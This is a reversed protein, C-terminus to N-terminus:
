RDQNYDAEPERDGVGEIDGFRADLDAVRKKRTASTDTQTTKNKNDRVADAVPNHDELTVEQEVAPTEAQPTNMPVSADDFEYATGYSSDMSWTSGYDVISPQLPETGDYMYLSATDVGYIQLSGMKLWDEDRMFHYKDDMRKLSAMVTSAYDCDVYALGMEANARREQNEESNSGKGFMSAVKDKAKGAMTDTHGDYLSAIGERAGDSYGQLGYMMQWYYRRMEEQWDYGDGNGAAQAAMKEDFVQEAKNLSEHLTENVSATSERGEEGCYQLVGYEAVAKGNVKLSDHIVEDSYFIDASWASRGMSDRLAVDKYRSMRERNAAEYDEEQPIHILNIFKDMGEQASEPLLKKVWQLAPEISKPLIDTMRLLATGGIGAVWGAIKSGTVGSTVGKLLAFSGIDIVGRQLLAMFSNEEPANYSMEEIPRVTNDGNLVKETRVAAQAAKADQADELEEPSLTKLHEPDYYWAEFAQREKEEIEYNKKMTNSTNQDIPKSFEEMLYPSDSWDAMKTDMFISQFDLTWGSWIPRELITTCGNFMGEITRLGTPMEGIEKSELQECGAFTYSADELNPPLHWCGNYYFQTSGDYLRDCDMFTCHMSTVSQPIAPILQIEDNDEFTYDLNKVGQPIVVQQSRTHNSLPGSDALSEWVNEGAIINELRSKDSHKIDHELDGVYKFVPVKIPTGDGADTDPIEKYGIGWDNGDYIFNGLYPSQCYMMHKGDKDHYSYTKVEYETGEYMTAMLDVDYTYVKGDSSEKVSIQGAKEQLPDRDGRAGDWRGAGFAAKTEGTLVSKFRPEMEREQPTLTMYYYLAQENTDNMCALMHINLSVGKLSSLSAGTADTIYRDSQQDLQTMDFGRSECEARVREYYADYIGHDAGPDGVTEMGQLVFDTIGTNDQEAAAALDATAASHDHSWRQKEQSCFKALTFQELLTTDDILGLEDETLLYEEKPFETPNEMMNRLKRETVSEPQEQSKSAYSEVATLVEGSQLDAQDESAEAFRVRITYDMDGLKATHGGDWDIERIEELYDYGANYIDTDTMGRRHMEEVLQDSYANYEPRYKVLDLESEAVVHEPDFDMCSANTLLYQQVLLRDDALTMEDATLMNDETLVVLNRSAVGGLSVSGKNRWEPASWKHEISERTALNVHSVAEGREALSEDTWAARDEDTMARVVDYGPTGAVLEESDPDLTALYAKRASVDAMFRADVQGYFDLEGQPRAAQDGRATAVTASDSIGWMGQIAAHKVKDPYASWGEAPPEGEKQEGRRWSEDDLGYGYGDYGPYTVRGDALMEAWIYEDLWAGYTTDYGYNCAGNDHTGAYVTEAM